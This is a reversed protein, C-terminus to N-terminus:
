LLLKSSRRKYNLNWRLIGFIRNLDANLAIPDITSTGLAIWEPWGASLWAAHTASAYKM